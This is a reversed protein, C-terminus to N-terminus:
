GKVDTSVVEVNGGQDLYEELTMNNEFIEKAAEEGVYRIHWPEYQYGTITEKGKPYRIIFGFRHANNKLWVGEETLEFEEVLKFSLKSTTVDMALGTQHESQGPYASVRTAQEEGLTELNTQFITSQREYSRYGSAAVLHINEKEAQSFLREIAKAADERMYKKPLDENFYFPITPITLSSPEYDRPLANKKNVLTLLEEPNAITQISDPEETQNPPNDSDSEERITIDQSDIENVVPPPGPQTTQEETEKNLDNLASSETAGLNCGSILLITIIIILLSLLSKMM